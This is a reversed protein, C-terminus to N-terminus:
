IPESLNGAGFETSEPPQLLLPFIGIFVVTQRRHYRICGAGDRSKRTKKGASDGKIRHNGNVRALNSMAHSFFTRNPVIM